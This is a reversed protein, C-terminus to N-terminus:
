SWAEPDDLRVRVTGTNRVRDRPVGSRAQTALRIQWAKLAVALRNGLGIECRIVLQWIEGDVPLPGFSEIRGESKLGDIIELIGTLVEKRARVTASRVAPPLGVALRESLERRAWEALTWTAFATALPGDTGPLFVPAGPSALSAARSWWRVADEPAHLGERALLRPADLLVVAAYGGDPIPEAGRTAIVLAPESGIRTLKREGDSIIVPVGPFAKGLDEATRSAAAGVPVVSQGSCASCAWSTATTGCLRCQPPKRASPFFLAGHCTRCRAPQRCDRCMGSTSYGPQAVQLLVPGDGLATKAGQFAQSSLGPRTPDADLVINPREPRLPALATLWGIDVLRAIDVSPNLGAFVLAARTAEQRILAVDRAHVGPALPEAFSSDSEDWVLLLSANAVPSLLASRNGVVVFSGGRVLRLHNAFRQQASQRADVAVIRRAPILRELAREVVEQDRYDPVAVIASDGRALAQTALEAFNAAWAPIAGGETALLRPQTTLFARAGADALRQAAGDPFGSLDRATVPGIAPVGEALVSKEARVHRPPIALRLVDSSVGAGRDAVRRALDFLLPTAVPEPTLVAKVDVLTREFDSHDTFDVIWGQAIRGSARLPVSVRQGVRVEDRLAGPVRYDFLHDLQPLSSELLVRAIPGTM